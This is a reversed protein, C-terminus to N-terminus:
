NPGAKYTTTAMLWGPAPSVDHTLNIRRSQTVEVGGARGAAGMIGDRHVYGDPPLPIEPPLTAVQTYAGAPFTGSAGGRLSVYKGDWSAQLTGATASTFGPQYPCTIWGTEPEPKPYIEWSSGTNRELNGTDARHVYVPNEPSPPPYGAADLMDLLTARSTEQDNDNTTYFGGRALGSIIQHIPKSPSDPNEIFWKTM